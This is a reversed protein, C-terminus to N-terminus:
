RKLMLSLVHWTLTPTDADPWARALRRWQGSGLSAHRSSGAGITTMPRLLELPRQARRSFRHLRRHRVAAGPLVDLLQDTAPFRLATCPVGAREAAQHWQQFSGAVPVAVILWGGQGLREFWHQLSRAPDTLWHLVFSSSLLVPATSWEPLPQNLDVCSTQASPQHRRLMAESGDVRLVRQGPHLRELDDALLGTGSGLDAWLGRPIAERRCREALQRAMARQLKAASDYRDASRGFREVVRQSWPDTM